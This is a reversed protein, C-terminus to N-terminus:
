VEFAQTNLDDVRPDSMRQFRSAKAAVRPLHKSSQTPSKSPEIPSRRPKVAAIMEVANRLYEPALHAYGATMQITKHGMLEQVTKLPVGAMVLRSCFTHRLCHWTFDRIKAKALAEDFWRRIAKRIFPKGGETIFVRDSEGSIAHQRKLAQLAVSNLPITRDAGNKTRLLHIRQARLDTQLWDLTFQESRRMGTHLAVEFENLNRESYEAAIVKRLEKEEEDSLFRIRGSGEKKARILRAPNKEAWGNRIAERYIMSLTARYRNFTAPSTQRSELFTALEQQTLSAAPRDGFEWVLVGIKQEDDAPNAKHKKAYEIAHDAFERFTRERQRLPKELKRGALADAKRQHYLRIADGKRGVKERHRKGEADV